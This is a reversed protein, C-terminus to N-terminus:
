NYGLPISIECDVQQEPQLPFTRISGYHFQFLKAALLGHIYGTDWNFWLPISIVEESNVVLPLITRIAGQHFQFAFTIYAHAAM